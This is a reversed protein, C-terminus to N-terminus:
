EIFAFVLFSLTFSKGREAIAGATTPPPLLRSSAPPPPVGGPGERACPLAHQDAGVLDALTAQPPGQVSPEPLKM